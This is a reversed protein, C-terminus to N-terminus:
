NLLYTCSSRAPALISYPLECVRLIPSVGPLGTAKFTQMM